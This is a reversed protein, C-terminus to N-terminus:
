YQCIPSKVEVWESKGTWGNEGIYKYYKENKKRFLGITPTNGRKIISKLRKQYAKEATDLKRHTTIIGNMGCVYYKENVANYVADEWEKKTHIPLGGHINVYQDLEKETLQPTRLKECISVVNMFYANTNNTANSNLIWNIAQKIEKRTVKM